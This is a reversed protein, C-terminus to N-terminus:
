GSRSMSTATSTEEMGISECSAPMKSIVSQDFLRGPTSISSGLLVGSAGRAVSARVALRLDGLDGAADLREAKGIRDQNAFRPVHDRSVPPKSGRLQQSQGLYRHDREM